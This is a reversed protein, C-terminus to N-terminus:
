EERKFIWLELDDQGNITLVYLANETEKAAVIEFGEFYGLIEVYKKLSDDFVEYEDFIKVEDEYYNGFPFDIDKKGFNIIDVLRARKKKVDSV